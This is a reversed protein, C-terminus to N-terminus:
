KNGGAKRAKNAPTKKAKPEEPVKEADQVPAPAEVKKTNGYPIANAPAKEPDLWVKSGNILFIKVPAKRGEKFIPFSPASM